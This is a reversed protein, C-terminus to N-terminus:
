EVEGQTGLGIGRAGERLNGWSVAYHKLILNLEEVEDIQEIRAVREREGTPVVSERIEKVSLAGCDGKVGAQRLRSTLSSLSPTSSAGPLSLNRAALNRKMVAGFSDELAFPDYSVIASGMGGTGDGAGGFTGCFWSLLADTVGPELYVLVCEVLLLTPLSPDLILPSSPSFPPPSLLLSFLPALSRLDGPLLAYLPSTLGLGGLEIKVDEGLEKRLDAKSSVTRAKAGTAEPFDVEVWRRCPWEGVEDGKDRWQQWRKRLRWFRTDTGAGLSLVQVGGAQGTPQGAGGGSGARGERLFQEVLDDVAWCRAHTGINILPPRRDPNRRQQPSLFLLSLPDDLYHLSHAAVRSVLADSDTSRVASDATSPSPGTHPPPFM